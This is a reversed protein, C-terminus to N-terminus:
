WSLINGYISVLSLEIVPLWNEKVLEIKDDKIINYFTAIITATTLRYLNGYQLFQYWQRGKFELVHQTVSGSHNNAYQSLQTEDNSALIEVQFQQLSNSRKLSHTKDCIYFYLVASTTTNPIDHSLPYLAWNTPIVYHFTYDHCCLVSHSITIREIVMKYNNVVLVCNNVEIFNPLLFHLHGTADILSPYGTNNDGIVHGVM